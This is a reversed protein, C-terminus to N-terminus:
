DESKGQKMLNLHHTSPILANKRTSTLGSALLVKLLITILLPCDSSNIKALWLARVVEKKFDENYRVSM